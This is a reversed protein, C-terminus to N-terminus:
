FYMRHGSNIERIRAAPPSDAAINQSASSGASEEMCVTPLAGLGPAVASCTLAVASRLLGPSLSWRRPWPRPGRHLGSLFGGLSRPGLCFLPLM